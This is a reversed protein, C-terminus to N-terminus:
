IVINYVLTKFNGNAAYFVKRDRNRNNKNWFVYKNFELPCNPILLAIQLPMKSDPPCNQFSPYPLKSDFWSPIKSLSWKSDHPCKPPAMQFWSPLKSLLWKSDPFPLKSDALIKWNRLFSQGNIKDKFAPLLLVLDINFKHLTRMYFDLRNMLDIWTPWWHGM